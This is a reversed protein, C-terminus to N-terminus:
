FFNQIFEVIGLDRLFIEGFFGTLVLVVGYTGLIIGWMRADDDGFRGAFLLFIGGLIFTGFGFYIMGGYLISLVFIGVVFVLTAFISFWRHDLTGRKM